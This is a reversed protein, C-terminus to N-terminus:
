GTTASDGDGVYVVKGVAQGREGASEIVNGRSMGDVDTMVIFAAEFCTEPEKGNMGLCARCAQPYGDADGVYQYCYPCYRPDYKREM